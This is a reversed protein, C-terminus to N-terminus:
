QEGIYMSLSPRSLIQKKEQRNQKEKISSVDIYMNQKEWEGMKSERGGM